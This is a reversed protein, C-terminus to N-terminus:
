ALSARARRRAMLGILGLGGLMMGWTAPEPVASQISVNDLLLFPPAGPATNQALFSLVQSAGGAVFQMSGSYWGSFGGNDISLMSSAMTSDGMGVLWFQNLNAGDFGTQQGLAFDFNLTYTAGPTFGSITQSLTAPYYDADSAFVNGRDLTSSYNKLWIASDWTNIIKTDLVFNYGGDGPGRSSTWGSITTRNPDSNPSASLQKNTGNTTLEFGGNVVQPAAKVAVGATLAAVATLSLLISKLQM